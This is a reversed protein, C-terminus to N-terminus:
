GHKSLAGFLELARLFSSSRKERTQASDQTRVPLGFHRYAIPQFTEDLLRVGSWSPFTRRLTGRGATTPAGRLGGVRILCILIKQRFEALKQSGVRGGL